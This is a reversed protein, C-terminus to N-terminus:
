RIEVGHRELLRATEFLPLGMIGSYSGAIREIFRAARGQIAYAGAKDAPEGTLWYAAIEDPTLARFRVRSVHACVDEGRPSVVAVATVVRHTRGSLAQLMRAGDRRDRPKGYIRGGAATLTDAGIVVADPYAAATARAKMLALRTTRTQATEGPLATEDIDAAHCQFQVALQPLLARRRPSASALIVRAAAM